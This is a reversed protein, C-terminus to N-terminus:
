GPGPRPRRAPGPRPPLIRARYDRLVANIWEAGIDDDLDIISTGSVGLAADPCRDGFLVIAQEGPQRKSPWILGHATPAQDRIKGAWRRTDAYDGSDAHILWETAAVAALSAADLLSVLSLDMTTEVVSCRRNAVHRRSITRVLDDGYPVDRLFREALATEPRLGAYYTPYPDDKTGDFRGGVIAGTDPRPVFPTFDTAKHKRHHVRWLRTGAPLVHRHPDAPFGHPLPRGPM